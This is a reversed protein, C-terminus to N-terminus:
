TRWRDETQLCTYEQDRNKKDTRCKSWRRENEQTHDILTDRREVM